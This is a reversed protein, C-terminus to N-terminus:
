WHRSMLYSMIALIIASFVVGVIGMIIKDFKGIAKEAKKDVAEINKDRQNDEVKKQGWEVMFADFKKDLNSLTKSVGMEFREKLSDQGKAVIEMEHKLDSNALSQSRLFDELRGRIMDIEKQRADNLALALEQSKDKEESM